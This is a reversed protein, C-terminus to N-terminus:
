VLLPLQHGLVAPIPTVSLQGLLFELQHAAAAAAASTAAAAAASSASVCTSVRAELAAHVRVCSSCDRGAVFAGVGSQIGEIGRRHLTFRYPLLGQVRLCLLADRKPLCYQVRLCLLADVKRLRCQVRLCLLADVKRQLRQLLPPLGFRYAPVAPPAPFVKLSM